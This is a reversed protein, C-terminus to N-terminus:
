RSKRYIVIVSVAAALFSLLHLTMFVEPVSRARQYDSTIYCMLAYYVASGAFVMWWIKLEGFTGERLTKLFLWLAAGAIGILVLLMAIGSMIGLLVLLAAVVFGIIRIGTESEFFESLFSPNSDKGFKGSRIREEIDRDVEERIRKEREREEYYSNM